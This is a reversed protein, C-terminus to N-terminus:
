LAIIIRGGFGIGQQVLLELFYDRTNKTTPQYPQTSNPSATLRHLYSTPKPLLCPLFTHNSLLLLLYSDTPDEPIVLKM